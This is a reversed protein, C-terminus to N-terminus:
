ALIAQVISTSGAPWEADMKEVSVRTMVVSGALWSRNRRYQATTEGPMRIM